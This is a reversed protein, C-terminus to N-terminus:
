SNHERRAVLVKNRSSARCYPVYTLIQSNQKCAHFSHLPAGESSGQAAEDASSTYVQAALAAYRSCQQQLLQESVLTLVPRCLAPTAGSCLRSCQRLM